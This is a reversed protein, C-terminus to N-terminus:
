RAEDGSHAQLVSGDFQYAQRPGDCVLADQPHRRLCMNYARTDRDAAFSCGAMCASLALLILRQKVQQM